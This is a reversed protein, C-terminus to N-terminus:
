ADRIWHCHPEPVLLARHGFAQHHLSFYFLRTSIIFYSHCTLHKGTANLVKLVM